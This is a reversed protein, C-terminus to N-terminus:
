RVWWWLDPAQGTGADNQKNQMNEIESAMQKMKQGSIIHPTLMVIIEMKEWLLEKKKFFNGIIPINMIVPIGNMREQSKNKILGGIIITEGDRVVVTTSAETTNKTPLGDSTISGESVEPHIEMRITGDNSIFPTFTLKTGVELFDVNQITGTTTTITTRYGLKSGSIISAPKGSIAIVKPNALLNFGEKHELGQLYSEVNGKVVHAYIGPSGATAPVALGETQATLSNGTYKINAGLMSPTAGNGAIIEMIQSEVIVQNPTADMKRIIRGINQLVEAPAEVIILNSDKSSLIRTNKYDLKTIMTNVDDASVNDTSFARTTLGNKVSIEEEKSKGGQPASIKIIQGEIQYTCGSSNLVTQLAEFASVNRISITVNGRLSGPAVINLGAEKGLAYIVTTLPASKLNLTIKRPSPLEAQDVAFSPCTFSFYLMFCFMMVARKKM